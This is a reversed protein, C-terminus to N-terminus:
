LGFRRAEGRSRTTFTREMYRMEFPSALRELSLGRGEM